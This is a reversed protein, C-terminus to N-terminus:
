PSGVEWLQLVDTRTEESRRFTRFARQGEQWKGKATTKSTFKRRSEARSSSSRVAELSALFDFIEPLSRCEMSGQALEFARFNDYQEQLSPKLGM